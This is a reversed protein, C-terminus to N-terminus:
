KILIKTKDIFNPILVQKIQKYAQKDKHWFCILELRIITKEDLYGFYEISKRDENDDTSTVIYKIGNIIKLEQNSVKETNCLKLLSLVRNKKLEDEDKIFLSPDYDVTILFHYQYVTDVFDIEMNDYKFRRELYIWSKPKCTQIHVHKGQIKEEAEFNSTCKDPEKCSFISLIFIIRLEKM